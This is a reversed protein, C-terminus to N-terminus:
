WVFAIIGEEDDLVLDIRAAYPDMNLEAEIWFRLAEILHAAALIQKRGSWYIEASYGYEDDYMLEVKVEEPSIKKSSAAHLCIANVIDQEAIKIKGM